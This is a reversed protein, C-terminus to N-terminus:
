FDIGANRTVEELDDAFKNSFGFHGKGVLVIAKSKECPTAKVNLM